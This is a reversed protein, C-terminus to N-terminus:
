SSKIDSITTSPETSSPLLKGSLRYDYCFHLIPRPEEETSQPTNEVTKNAEEIMRAVVDATASSNAASTKRRYPSNRGNSSKKASKTTITSPM